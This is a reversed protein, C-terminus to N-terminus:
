NICLSQLTKNCDITLGNNTLLKGKTLMKYIGCRRVDTQQNVVKQRRNLMICSPNIGDVGVAGIGDRGGDPPLANCLTM